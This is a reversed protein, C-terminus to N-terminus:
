QYLGPEPEWGTLVHRGIEAEKWAVPDHLSLVRIDRWRRDFGNSRAVSRTGMLTYIESAAALAAKHATVKAAYVPIALETRSIEGAECRDLLDAATQMLVYAAVLDATVAGALRRTLPDDAANDVGASPWPRSKTGVFAAAERLAAVASGIMIAAFGVQYRLSAWPPSFRGPINANWDPDTEVQDFTISGSDTARQGLADWDRHITVGNSSPPILNLQMGALPNEAVGPAHPNFAWVGIYDAEAAGTTYIKKGTLTFGGGARPTAITTLPDSVKRGSEAVALGIIAQREIIAAALRPKLADPCYTPIERCLEDHVKYVQAVASDAIALRLQVEMSVRHPIGDGGLAKPLVAKLYGSRKLAGISATPYRGVRDNEVALPAIEADIIKQLEVLKALHEAAIGPPPFAAGLLPPLKMTKTM